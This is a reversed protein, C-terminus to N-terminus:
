EATFPGFFEERIKKKTDSILPVFTPKGAEFGAPLLSM